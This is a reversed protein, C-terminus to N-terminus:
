AADRNLATNARARKRALKADKRKQAQGCRGTVMQEHLETITKRGTGTFLFPFLGHLLCAFGALIMRRGFYTACGMHEFYTEGVSQPHETFARM